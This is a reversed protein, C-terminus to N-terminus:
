KFKKECESYKIDKIDVKKEDIYRKVGKKSVILLPVEAGIDVIMTSGGTVNVYKM